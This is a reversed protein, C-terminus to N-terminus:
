AQVMLILSANGQILELLLIMYRARSAIRIMKRTLTM